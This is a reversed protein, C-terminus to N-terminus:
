TRFARLESLSGDVWIEIVCLQPAWARLSMGDVSILLDLRQGASLPLGLRGVLPLDRLRPLSSEATRNQYVLKERDVDMELSLLTQELDRFFSPYGTYFNVLHGSENLLLAYDGSAIPRRGEGFGIRGPMFTEQVPGLSFLVLRYPRGDIPLDVELLAPDVGLSSTFGDLLSLMPVLGVAEEPGIGPRQGFIERLELVAEGGAGRLWHFRLEARAVEREAVVSALVHYEEESFSMREPVKIELISLRESGGGVLAIYAVSSGILAILLIGSLSRDM